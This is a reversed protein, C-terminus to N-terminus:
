RPKDLCATEFVAKDTQDFVVTEIVNRGNGDRYHLALAMHGAYVQVLELTLNPTRRMVEGWYTRLEAKGKITGDRAYVKAFPSKLQIDDAYLDLLAELDRANWAALWKEAWRAPIIM